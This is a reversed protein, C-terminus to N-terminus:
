VELVNQGATADDVYIAEGTAHKHGSEHPFAPERQGLSRSIPSDGRGPLDEVSTTDNAGPKLGTDSTVRDSSVTEVTELRATLATSVAPASTPDTTVPSFDPALSLSDFYFKRLLNAILRQRYRGSGRVDSIPAFERELVPVVDAISQENWIKGVLAAETQRARASMAAVGGFALRAQSVKNAADLEVVFCGAVTSIDMERRKSVKDFRRFLQRQQTPRPLLVTK